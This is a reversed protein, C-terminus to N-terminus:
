FTDKAARAAGFTSAADTTQFRARVAEADYRLFPNIAREDSLTSPVTPEGKARQARAREIAHAIDPNHPEVSAAFALNKETYEHGCYVRTAGDLAALRALSRQM